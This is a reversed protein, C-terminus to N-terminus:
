FSKPLYRTRPGYLSCVCQRVVYLYNTNVGGGFVFSTMGFNRLHPTQSRANSRNSEKHKTWGGHVTAIVCCDAWVAQRRKGISFPLPLCPFCIVLEISQLHVCWENEVSECMRSRHEKRICLCRVGIVKMNHEHM